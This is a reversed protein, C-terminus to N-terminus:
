RCLRRWRWRGGRRRRFGTADADQRHLGLGDAPLRPRKFHLVIGLGAVEALAAAVTAAPRAEDAEVVVFDVGDGGEELEGGGFEDRLVGLEAGAARTEHQLGVRVAGADEELADVGAGDLRDFGLLAAVEGVFPAEVAPPFLAFGELHHRSMLLIHHKIISMLVM